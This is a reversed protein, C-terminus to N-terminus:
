LPRKAPSGPRRPYREPTHEVKELVVLARTGELGEITVPRIEKLTGGLTEISRRARKLEDEIDLNKHAIVLGGVRCFPLTVEALAALGAVARALAADFQERLDPEHALTEARGMRVDVGSLGLADILHVLFATKKATADMLTVSIGPFAIKLPLGPFGAGTGVDIFRGSNLMEPPIALSVSLSDLYHRTQVGKWDTIATLNIRRNWDALEGYYRQFQDLQIPGLNIGLAVVGSVLLDMQQDDM